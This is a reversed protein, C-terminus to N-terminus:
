PFRVPMLVYRYDPSESSVLLAPKLNDVTEITIEEGGAAEAGDILFQPNFAVALETGEYKADLQEFGAGYDQTTVSLELGDAKMVLRIPTASDRV